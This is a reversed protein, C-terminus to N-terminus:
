KDGQGTGRHRQICGRDTHRRRGILIKGTAMLIKRDGPRLSFIRLFILSRVPKALVM